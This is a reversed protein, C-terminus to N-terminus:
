RGARDGAGITSAATWRRYARRVYALREAPTRYRRCFWDILSITEDREAEGLPIALAAAFEEPSLRREALAHLWAVTEPSAPTLPNV